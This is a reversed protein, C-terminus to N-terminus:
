RVIEADLEESMHRWLLDRLCHGERSVMIAMRARDEPGRLRWQMGHPEAVEAAFGREFAERQSPSAIGPLHFATRLFFTGGAPDTSHQQSEVINAGAAFLYGSIAAVLGPRDACRVLLRATHESDISM